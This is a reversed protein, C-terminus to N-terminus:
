SALMVDGIGLSEERVLENKVGIREPTVVMTVESEVAQLGGTHYWHDHPIVVATLGEPEYGLVGLITCYSTRIPGGTDFLM